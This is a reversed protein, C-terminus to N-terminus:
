AYRPLQRWVFSTCASSGEICAHYLWVTVSGAHEATSFSCTSSVEALPVVMTAFVITSTSILSAACRRALAQTGQGIRVHLAILAGDEQPANILQLALKGRIVIGGHALRGLMLGMVAVVV